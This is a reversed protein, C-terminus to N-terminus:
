RACGDKGPTCFDTRPVPKDAGPLSVGAPTTVKAGVAGLVGQVFSNSNYDRGGASPNLSYDLDNKYSGAVGFLRNILNNETDGKGPKLEAITFSEGSKVKAVDTGRNVGSVLPGAVNKWTDPGAGITAFAVGNQRNSFRGDNRFTKQDDPTVVIKMHYSGSQYPGVTVQHMVVTIREGTVDKLNVPDNAVYAYLNVQDDYGIPDAQMFRGLTPSYIRAKYYYMGLEAIWAQGTYQFRGINTSEPIGWDDYKNITISTGTADTIATITGVQDAFLHRRNAGSIGSGEYWVLPDDVRVAGAHVYRRLLNGASDYEAVLEDGDYLFRTTGTTPSSTEYLRGLPDYSLSATKTGSASVLRNEADYVFTVSGDSTLNGNADYGFSAPGATLYQNLGNVTYTRSLLGDSGYVYADNSRSRSVIQSAPNYGFTTTQDAGTSNLDDSLSALRSLGDYGWTTSAVTRGAFSRRGQNDYSLANLTTFGNELLLNVRDVGDYGYATYNGDPLTVRTRNSNLDYLYNLTRTVGGMTSTNTIARGLNDFTSSLGEGSSSDFRTYLPLSRNDYGYFVDRTASSAVNTCAYGGVCADPVIKSTVRNLPDYNFTLIRGDRKRLTTRNGNSDYGYEEYDDTSATNATTKSPFYWRLKRDLGNYTQRAMTGNADTITAVQGNATYTYTVYDQALSSGVAKQIKSLRNTADYVNRTIRDGGNSGATGPTCADAPLSAYVAANMRVATCILRDLGDYSYQTVTQLGGGSVVNKIKRGAADYTM